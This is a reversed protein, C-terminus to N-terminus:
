EAADALADRILLLLANPDYPKRVFYRSGAARAQRVIDPRDSGTLVIVPIHCTAAEDVLKACVKLGDGDPLRLDLLVLEPQQEIALALAQQCSSAAITGFGQQGLRIELTEVLDPDDDVVLIAPRHAPQLAQAQPRDLLETSMVLRM